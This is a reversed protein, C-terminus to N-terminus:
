SQARVAELRKKFEPRSEIDQFRVDRTLKKVERDFKGNALASDLMEGAFAYNGLIYNIQFLMWDVRASHARAVRQAERLYFDAKKYNKKELESEGLLVYPVSDGPKTMIYQRLFGLAKEEDQQAYIFYLGMYAQSFGYELAKRCYAEEQEPTNTEASALALYAQGIFQRADASYQAAPDLEKIIQAFQETRALTEFRICASDAAKCQSREETTGAPSTSAVTLMTVLLFMNIKM